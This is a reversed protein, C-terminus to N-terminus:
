PKTLIIQQIFDQSIMKVVFDSVISYNLSKDRDRGDLSSTIVFIKSQNFYEVGIKELEEILELGSMEPMRIDIFIFDPLPKEEAILEQLYSLARSSSIFEDIQATSDVQHILEAHLMNFIDDDDVLMFKNKM